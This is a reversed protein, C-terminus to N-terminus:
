SAVGNKCGTGQIHTDPVTNFLLGATDNLYSPNVEWQNARGKVKGAWVQHLFLCRVRATQQSLMLPFLCFSFPRLFHLLQPSLKLPLVSYFSLLFAFFILSAGESDTLFGVLSLLWLWVHLHLFWQAKSVLISLFPLVAAAPLWPNRNPRAHCPVVLDWALEGSAKLEHKEKQLGSFISTPPGAM